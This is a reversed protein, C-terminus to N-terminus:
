IMDLYPFFNNRYRLASKRKGIVRAPNGAVISSPPVDKTVVSGAAVVSGKGIVVGPLIIARSALWVHDHIIVDKSITDHMDSHPDHGITFIWVGKAIDVNNGIKLFGGRGDLICGSNIICNDGITIKGRKFSKNLVTVGSMINSQKGKILYLKLIWNRLHPFPLKLVLKNVLFLRVSKIFESIQKM